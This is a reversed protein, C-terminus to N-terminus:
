VCSVVGFIYSLTLSVQSSAAVSDCQYEVEAEVGGDDDEGGGGRGLTIEVGHREPLSSCGIASFLYIASSLKSTECLM